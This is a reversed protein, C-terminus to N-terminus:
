LIILGGQLGVRVAEARNAVGLKAYISSVHFKVTHSSIDLEAAIQKNALGGALLQLVQSERETLPEPINERSGELALPAPAFVSELLGPWAVVLGAQLARVAARLESPSADLPLAGWAPLGLKALGGAREPDDALLLLSVPAGAPPLLDQLEDPFFAEGTVLLLDIELRALDIEALMSAEQVVRIADAEVASPSELLSRLGARVAPFSSIVAVRIVAERM